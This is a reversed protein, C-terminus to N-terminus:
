RYFTHFKIVNNSNNTKKERSFNWQWKAMLFSLFFEFQQVNLNRSQISVLFLRLIWVKQEFSKTQFFFLLLKAYLNFAFTCSVISSHHRIHCKFSMLWSFVCFVKSIESSHQHCIEPFFSIDNVNWHRMHPISFCGFYIYRHYFATSSFSFFCFCLRTIRFSIVAWLYSTNAYGVAFAGNSIIFEILAHFPLCYCWHNSQM